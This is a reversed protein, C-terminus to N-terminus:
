TPAKAPPSTGCTSSIEIKVPNAIACIPSSPFRASSIMAMTLLTTNPITRVRM